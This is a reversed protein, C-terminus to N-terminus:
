TQNAAPHYGSAIRGGKGLLCQDGQVNTEKYVMMSYEHEEFVWIKVYRYNQAFM